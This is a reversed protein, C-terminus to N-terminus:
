VLEMGLERAAFAQQWTIYDAAEQKSLDSSRRAPRDMWKGGGLGVRETGFRRALLIEHMNDPDEGTFEAIARDQVRIKARQADTFGGTVPEITVKWARDFTMGMLRTILRRAAHAHQLVFTEARM